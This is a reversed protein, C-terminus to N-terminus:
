QNTPTPFSVAGDRKPLGPNIRVLTKRYSRNKHKIVRLNVLEAKSYIRSKFMRPYPNNLLTILKREALKQVYNTTVGLLRSADKENVVAKLFSSLNEVDHRSLFQKKGNKSVQYKLYGTKIWSSTFAPLGVNLLRAAARTSVLDTLIGFQDKFGEVYTPNFRYEGDSRFSDRYPRLVDNAVLTLIDRKRLSLIKAAEASDVPHSLRYKRGKRPLAKIDKLRFKEIDERKFIYLPGGDVSIGSVPRVGRSILAPVVFEISTGTERAVARATVYNSQFVLLAERTIIKVKVGKKTGSKTGILGKSALFYLARARFELAAPNAAITFRQKPEYTLKKKQYQAVDRQSFRLRRFGIEDPWEASPRILGSLIDKIFTDIGWRTSALRVTLRELVNGFDRLGSNVPSTSKLPKSLVNRLLGNVTTEDFRYAPGSRTGNTSALLSNEVLRSINAQTLGLIQSAARLSLSGCCRGKYNEVSQAEVLFVRQKSGKRLVTGKLNGDSILGEITCPDVNLITAAKQRSVYKDAQRLRFWRPASVYGEDWNEFVYREFEHQLIQAIKTPLYSVRYLQRGFSGFRNLLGNTSKSLRSRSCHQELFRHFNTPWFEFVSFAKLMVEHIELINM